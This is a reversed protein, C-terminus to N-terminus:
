NMSMSTFAVELTKIHSVLSQFYKMLTMRNLFSMNRFDDLTPTVRDMYSSAVDKSDLFVDRSQVLRIIDSVWGRKILEFYTDPKVCAPTGDHRQTLQLGKNCKIESFQINNEFQKLPPLNEQNQSEMDEVYSFNVVDLVAIYNPTQTSTPHPIVDILRVEYPFIFHTSGVSFDHSTEHTQNQMTIKAIVEGEWVCTVDSPCRSDEIDYFFVELGDQSVKEGLKLEVAHASSITFCALLFILM